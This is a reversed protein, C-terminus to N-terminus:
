LHTVEGCASLVVKSAASHTLKVPSSKNSTISFVVISISVSKCSPLKITFPLTSPTVKSSNTLIWLSVLIQIMVVKPPLTIFNSLVVPM